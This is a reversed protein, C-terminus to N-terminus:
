VHHHNRYDYPTNSVELAFAFAFRLHPLKSMMAAVQWKSCRFSHAGFSPAAVNQLSGDIYSLWTDIMEKFYHLTSM